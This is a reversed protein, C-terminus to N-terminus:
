YRIKAKPCRSVIYKWVFEYYEPTVFVMNFLFLSTLHIVDNKREGNIRYVSKYRSSADTMTSLAMGSIVTGPENALIGLLGRLFSLQRTMDGQDRIQAVRIFEETMHYVMLYRGKYRWNVYKVSLLSIILVAIYTGFLIAYMELDFGFRVSLFIWFILLFAYLVHIVLLVTMLIVPNRDLDINYIWKYSGERDQYIKGIEINQMDDSTLVDFDINNEEFMTM